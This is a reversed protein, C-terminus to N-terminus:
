HSDFTLHTGYSVIRQAPYRRHATLTLSVTQAGQKRSPAEAMDQPLDMIDNTSIVVKFEKSESKFGPCKTM